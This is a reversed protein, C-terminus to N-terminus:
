QQVVVDDDVLTVNLLALLFQRACEAAADEGSREVSAVVISASRHAAVAAAAPAADASPTAASRARELSGM